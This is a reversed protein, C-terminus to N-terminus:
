PKGCLWAEQDEALFSRLKESFGPSLASVRGRGLVLPDICRKKAAIKRWPGDNGPAGARLIQRLARFEQWRAATSQNGQLRAIVAPETSYLDSETLVGEEMAFRLLESLMQMAYRDADSVYIRSCELAALAFAEATKEHQFTLEPAGEENGDVTLDNYFQKVAEAPCIRYNILNGLTYELRDASLRPSANDAIPYVHYDSVDRAALGQAKLFERIAASSEIVAETEQETAEQRLYDGRMFDVVHAFVPTAIDHFLGAVAQAADQTFHWVILAVGVSHDWRSYPRLGQFRPFSTYECGCNMGIQKLREVEPLGMGQRLFGPIEPHYMRDHEM